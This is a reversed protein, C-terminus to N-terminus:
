GKYIIYDCRNTFKLIQMLLGIEVFYDATMFQYKSLTRIRFQWLLLKSPTKDNLLEGGSGDMDGVQFVATISEFEGNFWM